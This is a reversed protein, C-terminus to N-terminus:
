SDDEPLDQMAVIRATMFGEPSTDGIQTEPYLLRMTISPTDLHATLGAWAQVTPWVSPRVELTVDGSGDVTGGSVIRTAHRLLLGSGGKWGIYDGASLITGATLGHLEVSQGTDDIDFSTTSTTLSGLGVGTYAKPVWRRPDIALFRQGSGDLSDFWAEIELAEDDTFAIVDASMMWLDTGLRGGAVHGLGDRVTLDNRVIKLSMDGMLVDPLSRPYSTM